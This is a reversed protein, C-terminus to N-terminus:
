SKKEFNLLNQSQNYKRFVKGDTNLNGFFTYKYISILMDYYNENYIYIYIVSIVIFHLNSDKMEEDIYDHVM